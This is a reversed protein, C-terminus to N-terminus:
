EDGLERAWEELKQRLEEKSPLYRRYKRAHIATQPIASKGTAPQFILSQGPVVQGKQDSSSKASPLQMKKTGPLKAISSQLIPSRQRYLLYLARMYALNREFFDSGFENTIHAALQGSATQGIEDLASYGKHM